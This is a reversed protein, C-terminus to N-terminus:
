PVKNWTGHMIKYISIQVRIDISWLVRSANLRASYHQKAGSNLGYEIWNWEILQLKENLGNLMANCVNEMWNVQNWNLLTYVYCM